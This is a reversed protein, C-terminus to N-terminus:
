ADRWGEYPENLEFYLLTMANWILHALHPESTDGMRYQELHNFIRNILNWRPIGQKWNDVGYKAAGEAYTEAVARLVEPPILDYRWRDADKSRIAGSEFETIEAPREWNM